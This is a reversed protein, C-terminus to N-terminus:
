WNVFEGKAKKIEKILPELSLLLVEKSGFAFIRDETVEDKKFGVLSGVIAVDGNFKKSFNNLSTVVARMEKSIKEM